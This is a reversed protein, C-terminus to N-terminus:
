GCTILPTQGYNQNLYIMSAEKSSTERSPKMIILCTFHKNFDNIFICALLQHLGKKKEGRSTVNSSHLKQISLVMVSNLTLNQVSSQNIIIRIPNPQPKTSVIQKERLM